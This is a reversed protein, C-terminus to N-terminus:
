PELQPNRAAEGLRLVGTMGRPMRARSEIRMDPSVVLRHLLLPIRPIAHDLVHGPDTVLGPPTAQHQPQFRGVYRPPTGRDYYWHAM